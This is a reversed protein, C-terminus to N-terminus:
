GKRSCKFGINEYFYDGIYQNKGLYIVPNACPLTRVFEMYRSVFPKLGRKEIYMEYSEIDRLFILTEGDILSPENFVVIRGLASLAKMKSIAVNSHRAVEIDIAGLPYDLNDLDVIYPYKDVLYSKGCTPYAFM